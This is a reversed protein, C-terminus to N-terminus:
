EKQEERSAEALKLSGLIRHVEPAVLDADDSMYTVTVTLAVASGDKKPVRTMISRQVVGRDNDGKASKVKYALEVDGVEFTGAHRTSMAMREIAVGRKEGFSRLDTQAARIVDAANKEDTPDATVMLRPAVLYPRGHEPKRRADAVIMPYKQRDIKALDWAPTLEMQLGLEDDDISTSAIGADAPGEESKCANLATLAILCALAHHEFVTRAM